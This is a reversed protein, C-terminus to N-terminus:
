KDNKPDLALYAWFGFSLALVALLVTGWFGPENFESM